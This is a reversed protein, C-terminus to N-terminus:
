RGQKFTDTPATYQKWKDPTAITAGSERDTKAPLFDTPNLNEHHPYPEHTPVRLMISSITEGVVDSPNFFMTLPKAPVAVPGNMLIRKATEIHDGTTSMYLNGTSTIKTNSNSFLELGSTGEIHTLNGKINVNRVAEFNIDRDARFNLDTKTHISISDEAFIDIKGNSTLEIWTTGRANGIYILDESNHMLIQHGTRTRIRVLENHPVNPLGSQAAADVYEPPGESALKKRVFKPDGDDMVFTTGGLRHIPIADSANPIKVKPSIQDVPGPTSIGFVKSPIDRRASSSTIGRVDDQLVGQKEFVDALLHKPKNTATPYKGPIANTKKNFEAVPLRKSADDTNYTTAAAGPVMFNRDDSPLSGIWFANGVNGEMLLVVVRSGIEPTPVWMGWATQTDQFSNATGNYESDTNGWYASMYKAPITEGLEEKGNSGMHILQVRIENSYTADLNSIVKAVYPGPNALADVGDKLRRNTSVDINNMTM